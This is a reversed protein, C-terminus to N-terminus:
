IVKYIANPFKFKIGDQTVYDLEESFLVLFRDTKIYFIKM